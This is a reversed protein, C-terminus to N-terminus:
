ARPFPRQVRKVRMPGEGAGSRGESTRPGRRWHGGREASRKPSSYVEFGQDLVPTWCTPLSSPRRTTAASAPDRGPHRRRRPTGAQSLRASRTQGTLLSAHSPGTYPATTFARDLRLARWRTRRSPADRWTRRLRQAPRGSGHRPDGTRRKPRAPSPRLRHGHPGVDGPLGVRPRPRVSEPQAEGRASSVSEAAVVGGPGKASFVGVM